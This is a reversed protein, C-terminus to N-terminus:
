QWAYERVNQKVIENDALYDFLGNIFVLAKEDPFVGIGIRILGIVENNVKLQHGM